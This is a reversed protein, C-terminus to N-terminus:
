SCLESHVNFLVIFLFQEVSGTFVNSLPVFISGRAAFRLRRLQFVIGEPVAPEAALNSLIQSAKYVNIVMMAFLLFCAQHIIEKPAHRFARAFAVGGALM